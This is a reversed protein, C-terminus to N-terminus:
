WDPGLVDNGNRTIAAKLTAPSVGQPISRVSGDGLGALFIRSHHKGLPPLPGNPDFPIDEPKTWPVANDAEVILITNSTGDPFDGPISLGRRLEFAAGNGVFVHYYTHDPPTTTDGPLQYTKPMLALLPKNHPSDWPEDLKFQSYLGQQEILPLIAVRWSLLPKGRPDCIAAAPLKGYADNHNHMALVMQKLNNQSQARAAADRVKQVAPILIAFPLVTFSCIMGLCSLVLGTIALGQGRLRGGSRSIDGLALIALIIGPLGTLFSCGFSFVGLILSTTAKGSSGTPGPAPEEEERVIPRARRTESVAEESSEVPAETIAAPGPVVQETKCGPCRVHKGALDERVQLLKGCPCSFRIM